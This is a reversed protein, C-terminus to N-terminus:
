GYDIASRCLADHMSVKKKLLGLKLLSLVVLRRDESSCQMQYHSVEAASGPGGEGFGAGVAGAPPGSEAGPAAATGPAGPASAGHLLNLTVPNHLVLQQLQEVDASSTASMLMCQASRPIHVAVAQLDETYGYSLLLDAEDLILVQLAAALVSPQLWCEKIATAIRAPTCVVVAGASAASARQAVPTDGQLTSVTLPVGCHQVVARAEEAVQLCLTHSRTTFMIASATCIHLAQQSNM